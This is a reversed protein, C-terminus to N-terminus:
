SNTEPGWHEPEVGRWDIWPVGAVEASDVLRVTVSLLGASRDGCVWVKMREIIPASDVVNLYRTWKMGKGRVLSQGCNLRIRSQAHDFHSVFGTTLAQSM